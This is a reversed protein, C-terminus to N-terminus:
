KQRAKAEPVLGRVIRSAHRESIGHKTALQRYVGGPKTLSIFHNRWARSSTLKKFDRRVQAANAKKPRHDNLSKLNKRWRRADEDSTHDDFMRLTFRLLRNIHAVARPCGLEVARDLDRLCCVSMRIAGRLM